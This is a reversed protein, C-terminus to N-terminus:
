SGSEIFDKFVRVREEEVRRDLEGTEIMEVIVPELVAAEDAFEARLFHFTEQTALPVIAALINSHGAREIELDGVVRGHIAVDIRGHALLLMLSQIDQAYVVERSAKAANEAHVIGRVVGVSLQALDEKSAVAYGSGQRIFATTERAGMAPGVKIVDDRDRGYQAVRQVEGDAEGTRVYHAARKSPLPIIQVELGARDYVEMIVGTIIRNNIGGEISVLRIPEAHACLATALLVFISRMISRM